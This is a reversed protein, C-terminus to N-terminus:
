LVLYPPFSSVEDWHSANPDLHVGRFADLGELLHANAAAAAAARAQIARDRAQIQEALAAARLTKAILTIENALTPHSIQVLFFSGNAAEAATPFDGGMGLGVSGMGASRSGWVAAGQGRGPLGMGFGMGSMGRGREYPSGRTSDVSVSRPGGAASDAAVANKLWGNVATTSQASILTSTPGTSIKGTLLRPHTTSVQAIVPAVTPRALHTIYVGILSRISCGYRVRESM